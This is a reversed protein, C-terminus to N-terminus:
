NISRFKEPHINNNQLRHTPLAPYEKWM